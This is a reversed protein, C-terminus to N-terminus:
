LAGEAALFDVLKSLKDADIPKPVVARAGLEKARQAVSSQINATIVIIPGRFEKNKLEQLVEFGDMEPMNLDLFLLDVEGGACTSLVENGSSTESVDFERNDPLAKIISKRSFKSDDCILLRTTM